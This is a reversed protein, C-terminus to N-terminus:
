RRAAGPSLIAIPTTVGPLAVGLRPAAVAAAAGYAAYRVFPKRKRGKSLVLAAVLGLIAGRVIPSALLDNM